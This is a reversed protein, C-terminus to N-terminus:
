NLNRKGHVVALILVQEEEIKYLIRYSYALVERVRPNQFEPVMRGSNPFKKLIQTARVIEKVV